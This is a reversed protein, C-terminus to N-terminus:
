GSRRGLGRPSGTLRRLWSEGATAGLIFASPFVDGAHGAHGNNESGAFHRHGFPEAAGHLEFAPGVAAFDDHVLGAGGRGKRVAEVDVVVSGQLRGETWDFLHALLRM